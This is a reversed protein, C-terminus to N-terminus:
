VRPTPSETSKSDSRIFNQSEPATPMGACNSMLFDIRLPCHVNSMAAMASNAPDSHLQPLAAGASKRLVLSEVSIFRSPSLFM